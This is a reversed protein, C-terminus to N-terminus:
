RQMRFTLHHYYVCPIHDYERRKNDDSLTEYAVSITKFKAEADANGPNRDPHWKMALKRYASKIEDASANEAVGLTEYHTSM